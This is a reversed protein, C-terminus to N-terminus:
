HTTKMGKLLAVFNRGTEEIEKQNEIVFTHLEPSDLSPGHEPDIECLTLAIIRSVELSGSEISQGAEIWERIFTKFLAAFEVSAVIARGRDTIKM